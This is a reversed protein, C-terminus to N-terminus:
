VCIVSPCVAEFKSKGTLMMLNSGFVWMVNLANGVKPIRQLLPWSGAQFDTLPDAPPHIHEGWPPMKGVHDGAHQFGAWRLNKQNRFKQAFTSTGVRPCGFVVVNVEADEFDNALLWGAL